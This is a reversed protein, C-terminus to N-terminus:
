HSFPAGNAEALVLFPVPNGVEVAPVGLVDAM